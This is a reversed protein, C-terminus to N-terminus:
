WLTHGRTSLNPLQVDVIFGSYISTEILLFMNKTLWKRPQHVICPSKSYFHISVMHIQPFSKSVSCAKKSTDDGCALSCNPIYLQRQWSHCNETKLPHVQGIGLDKTNIVASPCRTIQFGPDCSVQCCLSWPHDTFPHDTSKWALPPKSISLTYRVVIIWQDESIDLLNTKGTKAPREM